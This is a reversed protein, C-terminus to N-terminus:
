EDEGNGNSRCTPILMRGDEMNRHVGGSIAEGIREWHSIEDGKPKNLLELHKAMSKAAIGVDNAHIKLGEDSNSVASLKSREVAERIVAANHGVLPKVAKQLDADEAVLKDGAYYRVLRVTASMDPPDITVVADIRGPRIFASHITEVLNTTLVVMIEHHKSDVGDVLNLVSNMDDDREDGGVIRDVDEAFVVAPEYLKAFNLALDLDRVDQLYLFTWQNEVCKKALVHATLTKGTGFPGELLVGRKLPIGQKRCRESYEVPNFLSTTVQQMTAESLILGDTKIGATEMFKPCFSPNFKRIRNGDTDRFNMKIAKGRYISDTKCKKRVLEAIEHVVGEDRRVVEGQLCFVPRNEIMQFNCELYGEVKPIQCRGWPVQMTEGAGIDVAIMTPPNDGFFGPTPILDAWGYKEKLVRFFNVAGDLPFAEIVESIGVTTMEEKQKRQLWRIGEDLSMGDPLIIRDGKRHINVEGLLASGGAIKQLQSVFDSLKKEDAV